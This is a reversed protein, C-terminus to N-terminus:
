PHAAAPPPQLEGLTRRIEGAVDCATLNTSVNLCEVTLLNQLSGGPKLNKEVSLTEIETYGLGANSYMEVACGGDPHRGDQDDSTAREVVVVGGKQAAIWARKSDSCLKHEGGTAYVLTRECSTLQRDDPAGFLLAKFGKELASESDTPLFVRSAGGIQSINWLVAPVEADGTREVRQRVTVRAASPDLKILRTVKLNLPAGYERSLLCCSAGDVDKWANGNWSREALAAPPPWDAGALSTWRSQAVPWLWDGGLNMWTEIKGAAPVHGALSSDMRLLNEGGKYNLSVIRGVAPVVAVSLAPNHLVFVEAWGAFNTVSIPAVPVDTSPPNGARAPLVAFAVAAFVAPFHRTKM